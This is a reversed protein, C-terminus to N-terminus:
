PVLPRESAGARDARGGRGRPRYVGFFSTRDDDFLDRNRALMDLAAGAQGQGASGLFLLAIWRGAVTDFAYRPSGDLAAAHFWPAAQGAILLKSM